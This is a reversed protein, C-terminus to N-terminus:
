FFILLWVASVKQWLSWLAAMCFAMPQHVTADVPMKAILFDEGVDVYEIRLTEMLTNASSNNCVKLIKEKYGDM